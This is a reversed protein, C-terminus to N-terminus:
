QGTAGAIKPGLVLVRSDGSDPQRPQVDDISERSATVRVGAAKTFADVIAVFVGDESQVFAKSRLIFPQADQAPRWAATQAWANALELVALATLVSTAALAPGTVSTRLSLKM